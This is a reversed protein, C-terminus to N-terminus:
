YPSIKAVGPLWVETPHKHTPIYRGHRRPPVTVRLGNYGPNVYKRLATDAPMFEFGERRAAQQHVSKLPVHTLPVILKQENGQGDCGPGLICDVGRSEEQEWM